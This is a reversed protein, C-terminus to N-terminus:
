IKYLMYFFMFSTSATTFENPLADSNEAYEVRDGVSYDRWVASVKMEDFWLLSRTMSSEPLDFTVHAAMQRPQRCLTTTAETLPPRNWRTQTVLNRSPLSSLSDPMRVPSFPKRRRHWCSCFSRRVRNAITLSAYNSVCAVRWHSRPSRQASHFAARFIARWLSTRGCCHLSRVRRILILRRETFWSLFFPSFQKKKEEWVHLMWEIETDCNLKKMLSVVVDVVVVFWYNDSRINTTFLRPLTQTFQRVVIM